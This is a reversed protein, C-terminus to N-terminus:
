ARTLLEQSFEINIFEVPRLASLGISVRLIGNDTDGDQLALSVTYAQDPSNGYLGGKKWVSYLYNKIAATVSQWTSASNPEFIVPWLMDRVDREVTNFLQRVSVFRWATSTPDAQTRAGMITIGTSPMWRIVNISKQHRNGLDTQSFTTDPMAGVISINAPAKWIGRSQECACYAGAVASQPTITPSKVADYNIEVGKWAEQFKKYEAIDEASTSIKLTSVSKYGSSIKVFIGDDHLIPTANLILDPSYVATHEKNVFAPSDTTAGSVSTILFSQQNSNIVANLATNVSAENSRPGVYAMLSIESYEEIMSTINPIEDTESLAMIWCGSGGNSFYHNMALAGLNINTGGLKVESGSTPPIQVDQLALLVSESTKVDSKLTKPSSKKSKSTEGDVERMKSANEDEGTAIVVKLVLPSSLFKESFESMNSVYTLGDALTAELGDQKYFYGVLLPVLGSMGAVGLSLRASESTYVGPYTNM